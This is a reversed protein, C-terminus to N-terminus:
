RRWGLIRAALIIIMDIALLILGLSIALEFEGKHIELAIATTFVRTYGAINGGLMLAIGLEGVARQFGLIISGVVGARNEDILLRVIELDGAGLSSAMEILPTAEKSVVEYAASAILPTVLIAQGIIMAHPTYLLGLIGLPGSRSLILYLILGILVTPFGMLTNMISAYIKEGRGGRRVVYVTLPIAWLSALIAATGSIFLSRVTIEIIEQTLSM